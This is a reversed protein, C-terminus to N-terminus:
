IHTKLLILPYLTNLVPQQMWLTARLAPSFFSGTYKHTAQVHTYCEHGHVSLKTRIVHLRKRKEFHVENHLSTKRTIKMTQSSYCAGQEGSLLQARGSAKPSWLGQCRRTRLQIIEQYSVTPMTLAFSVNRRFYNSAIREPHPMSYPSTGEMRQTIWM